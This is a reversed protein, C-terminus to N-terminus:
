KIMANRNNPLHPRGSRIFMVTMITTILSLSLWTVAYQFHSNSLHIEKSRPVPVGQEILKSNIYPSNDALEDILFPLSGTYKAMQQLDIYFWEGKEPINSPTFRNGKEGNRVQGKLILKSPRQSPDKMERSIWGRKVLIVQGNDLKFPTILYYGLKNDFTRPGLLIEKDHVFHGKALANYFEADEIDYDTLIMDNLLIPPAESREHILNILNEKWKLRQVQWWGLYLTLAPVLALFGAKLYF